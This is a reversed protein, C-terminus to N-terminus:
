FRRACVKRSQAKAKKQVKSAVVSIDCWFRRACLKRSKAKAQEQIKSGVFTIDCWFSKACVKRSEDKAKAQVKSGVVGPEYRETKLQQKRKSRPGSWGSTM